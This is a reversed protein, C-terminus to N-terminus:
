RAIGGTEFRRLAEVVGPWYFALKRVGPPRISPIIGLKVLDRLNREAYADKLRELLTPFGIFPSAEPQPKAELQLLTEEVAWRLWHKDPTSLPAENAGPQSTSVAINNDPM